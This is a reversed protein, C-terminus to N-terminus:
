LPYGPFFEYKEGVPRYTMILAHACPFFIGDGGACGDEAM